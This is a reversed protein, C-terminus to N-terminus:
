VSLLSVVHHQIAYRFTINMNAKEWWVVYTENNLINWSMFASFLVVSIQNQACISWDLFFGGTLLWFEM